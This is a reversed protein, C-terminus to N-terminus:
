LLALVGSLLLTAILLAKGLRIIKSDESDQQNKLAIKFAKIVNSLHKRVTTQNMDLEKAIKENSYGKNRAMDYVLKGYPTLSQIVQNIVSELEKGILINEPNLAQPYKSEDIPGLTERRSKKIKKISLHKVSQVLYAEVNKIDGLQDKKNWLSIFVESVVDEATAKDEAISFAYRLMCEFHENYISEFWKDSNADHANNHISFQM